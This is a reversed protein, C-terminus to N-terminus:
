RKSWNSRVFLSSFTLFLSTSLPPSFSILLPLFFQLVPFLYPTYFKLCRSIIITYQQNTVDASRLPRLRPDAASRKRPNRTRIGEPAHINSTLATNDRRRASGEDLPTRVVTTHWHTHDRFRLFSSALVRLLTIFALLLLLFIQSTQHSDYVFTIHMTRYKQITEHATHQPYFGRCKSIYLSIAHKTPVNEAQKHLRNVFRVRVVKDRVIHLTNGKVKTISGFFV